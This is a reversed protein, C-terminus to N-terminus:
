RRRPADPPSIGRPRSGSDAALRMPVHPIGDVLREPGDVEFGLRAYWRVLQSQASLRLPRGARAVAATVLLTALGRARSQADTVVRGIHWPAGATSPYT